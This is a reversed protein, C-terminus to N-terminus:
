GTCSDKNGLSCGYAYSDLSANLDVAGAKTSAFLAGAQACAKPYGARCGVDFLARARSADARMAKTAANFCHRADGANCAREDDNQADIAHHEVVPAVLPKKLGTLSLCAEADGAKCDKTLVTEAVADGTRKLTHAMAVASQHKCGSQE